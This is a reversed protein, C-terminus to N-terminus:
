KKKGSDENGDNAQTNLRVLQKLAERPLELIEDSLTEDSVARALEVPPNCLNLLPNFSFLRTLLWACYFQQFM